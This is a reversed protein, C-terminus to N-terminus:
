HTNRYERPSVGFKAKFKKYFDSTNSFGVEIALDNISVNKIKIIECFRNFRIERLLNNFTVGSEKKILKSLNYNKLNLEESIENLNASKLNKEMYTIVKCLVGQDYSVKDIKKPKELTLDLVLIGLLFKVRPETLFKDGDLESLMENLSMELRNNGKTSFILASTSSKKFVVDTFFNSLNCTESIFEFIYSFFKKHIIFNVIIDSDDTPYIEHTVGPGLFLLDGTLLEVRENEIVQVSHGSLIYCIEVYDHSHAPYHIFRTHKRISIMKGRPCVKDFSIINRYRDTFISNDIGSNKNIIGEEEITTSKMKEMFDYLGRDM